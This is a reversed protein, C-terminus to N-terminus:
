GIQSAEADNLSDDIDLRRRKKGLVLENNARRARTKLPRALMHTSEYIGCKNCLIKGANLKSKRWSPAEVSRCNNCRRRVSATEKVGADDTYQISPDIEEDSKEDILEDEEETKRKLGNKRPGEPPRVPPTDTGLSGTISGEPTASRRPSDRRPEVSPGPSPNLMKPSSVKPSPSFIQPPPSFKVKQNQQPIRQPSSHSTERSPPPRGHPTPAPERSTPLNDRPPIHIERPSPLPDKSPSSNHSHPPRTYSPSNPPSNQPYSPYSGAQSNQNGNQYPPSNQSQQPHPPPPQSEQVRGPSHQSPPKPAHSQSPPQLSIYRPPPPRPPPVPQEPQPQPQRYPEPYPATPHYQRSYPLSQPRYVPPGYTQTPHSPPQPPPVSHLVSQTPPQAPLNPPQRNPPSQYSPQSPQHPPQPSRQPPAPQPPHPQQPHGPYQSPPPPQSYSSPQHQAYIPQRQPGQPPPIPAQTGTQSPPPPPPPPPQSYQGPAPTGSPVPLYVMGMGGYWGSYHSTSGHPPPPQHHHSQHPYQPPPVPQQSIPPRYINHSQPPPGYPPPHSSHQMGPMSNLPMHPQQISTPPQIHPPGYPHPAASNPGAINTPMSPPPVPSIGPPPAVPHSSPPVIPSTSSALPITGSAGLNPSHGGASYQPPGPPPLYNGNSPTKVSLAPLQDTSPRSSATSPAPPGLLNRLTPSTYQQTPTSAPLTAQLGSGSSSNIDRTVTNTNESVKGTEINSSEAPRIVEPAKTADSIKKRDVKTELSEGAEDVQSVQSRNVSQRSTGTKSTDGKATKTKRPGRRVGKPKTVKHQPVVVRTAEPLGDDLIDDALEDVEEEEIENDDGYEREVSGSTWDVARLIPGPPSISRRTSPVRSSSARVSSLLPAAQKPRPAQLTPSRHVLPAHPPSPHELVSPQKSIPPDPISTPAQPLQTSDFKEAAPAGKQDLKAISETNADNPSEPLDSNDKSEVSKLASDPLASPPESTDDQLLSPNPINEQQSIGEATVNTSSELAPNSGELEQQESAITSSKQADAIKDKKAKAAKYVKQSPFYYTGRSRKHVRRNHVTLSSSGEEKKPSPDTNEVSKGSRLRLAENTAVSIPDAVKISPMKEGGEEDSSESVIIYGKPGKRGEKRTLEKTVSTSASDTPELRRRSRRPSPQESKSGLPQPNSRTSRTKATLSVNSASQRLRGLTTSSRSTTPHVPSDVIPLQASESIIPTEPLVANTGLGEEIRQRKRPHEESPQSADGSRSAPKETVSPPLSATQPLVDDGKAGNSSGSNETAEDKSLDRMVDMLGKVIERQNARDKGSEELRAKVIDQLEQPSLMSLVSRVGILRQHLMNVASVDRTDPKPSHDSKFFSIFAWVSDMSLSSSKSISSSSTTAGNIPPAASPPWTELLYTVRARLLKSLEAPRIFELFLQFSQIPDDEM